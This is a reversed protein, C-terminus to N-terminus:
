EAEKATIERYTGYFKKPNFGEIILTPIGLLFTAGMQFIHLLAVFSFALNSDFGLLNALVYVGGAEYTGVAGPAAPIMIGLVLGALTLGAQTWSLNLSLGRSLIAVVTIEIFWILCSLFALKAIEKGNKLVHLGSIFNEIVQRIKEPLRKLLNELLERSSQHRIL